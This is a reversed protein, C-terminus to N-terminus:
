AVNCFVAIEKYLRVLPDVRFQPRGQPHAGVIGCKKIAARSGSDLPEQIRAEQLILKKDDQVSHLIEVKQFHSIRQKAGCSL